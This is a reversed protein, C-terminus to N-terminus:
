AKLATIIIRSGDSPVAYLTPSLDFPDGLDFVSKSGVVVEVWSELTHFDIPTERAIM